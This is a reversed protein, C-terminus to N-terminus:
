ETKENRGYRVNNQKAFEVVDKETIRTDNGRVKTVLKNWWTKKPLEQAYLLKVKVDTRRAALEKAYEWASEFNLVNTTLAIQRLVQGQVGGRTLKDDFRRQLYSGQYTFIIAFKEM